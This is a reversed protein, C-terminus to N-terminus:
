KLKLSYFKINSPLTAITRRKIKVGDKQVGIVKGQKEDYRDEEVIEREKFVEEKDEVYDNFIVYSISKRQQRARARIESIKTDDFLIVEQNSKIKGFPHLEEVWPHDNAEWITILAGNQKLGYIWHNEDSSNVYRWQIDYGSGGSGGKFAFRGIQSDTNDNVPKLDIGVDQSSLVYINPFFSYTNMTIEVVYNDGGLSGSQSGTATSLKAQTVAGDAVHLMDDWASGDYIYLTDEDARYFMQGAVPSEPFSTGQQLVGDNNIMVALRAVLDAKNGHVNVGIMDVFDVMDVQLQNVHDCDILDVKNYKTTFTLKTGPLRSTTGM